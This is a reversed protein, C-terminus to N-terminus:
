QQEHVLQKLEAIRKDLKEQQEDIKAQEYKQLANLYKEGFAKTMGSQLKENLVDSNKGCCVEFYNKVFGQAYNGVFLRLTSLSRVEIYISPLDDDLVYNVSVKYGDPLQRQIVRRIMNTDLRDTENSM